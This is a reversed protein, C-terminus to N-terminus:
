AIAECAQFHPKMQDAGINEVQFDKAWSDLIYEPVRHYLGRNIESGGGVCRGEVWALKHKGLAVNVGANRYKQLMEERSFHPTSALSLHEGEEVMLVSLGAGAFETASVCGGPGSGIVLIDTESDERHAM